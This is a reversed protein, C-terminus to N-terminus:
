IHKKRGRPSAQVTTDAFAFVVLDFLIDEGRPVVLGKCIYM